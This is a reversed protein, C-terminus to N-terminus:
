HPPYPGSRHEKPHGTSAPDISELPPLVQGRIRHKESVSVREYAVTVREAIRGRVLCVCVCVCNGM